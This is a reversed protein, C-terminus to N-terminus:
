AAAGAKSHKTREAPTNKETEDLDIICQVSKSEDHSCLTIEVTGHEEAARWPNLSIEGEDIKVTSEYLPHTDVGTVAVRFPQKWGNEKAELTMRRVEQNFRKEHRSIEYKDMNREM